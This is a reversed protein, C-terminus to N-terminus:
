ALFFLEEFGVLSGGVNLVGLSFPHPVIILISRGLELVSGLFKLHRRSGLGFIHEIGVVIFLSLWDLGFLWVYSSGCRCGFAHLGSPWACGHLM